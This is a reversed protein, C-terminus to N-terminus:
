HLNQALLLMNHHSVTDMIQDVLLNPKKRIKSNCEKCYPYLKDKRNNDKNFGNICKTNKCKCKNCKPCFKKELTECTPCPHKSAQKELNLRRQKEIQSTGM